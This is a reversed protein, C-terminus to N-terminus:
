KLHLWQKVHRSTSTAVWGYCRAFFTLNVSISLGSRAKWHAWSSCRVNGWFATKWRFDCKEQFFTQFRSNKLNNDNTCALLTYRNSYNRQFQGQQTGQKSTRTLSHCSLRFTFTQSLESNQETTCPISVIVQQASDGASMLRQM